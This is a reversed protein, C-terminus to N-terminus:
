DGIEINCEIRAQKAKASFQMYDERRVEFAEGDRTLFAAVVGKGNHLYFRKTGKDKASAAIRSACEAFKSADSTQCAISHDYAAHFTYTTM